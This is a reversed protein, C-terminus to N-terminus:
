KKSKQCLYLYEFSWALCDQISRSRIFGYQNQHILRLICTQLRDALIKTILKICTNLLSIPMYDSVTTPSDVKPILTIYSSNISQLWINENYFEECLLYFDEAIVPWCKKLDTNFGDPGPSKHRPMSQVVKNIEEKTFPMQLSELDEYSQLLSSLDFQMETFETTGLRDKYSQWLLLSKDEHSSYINGNEDQLTTIYNRIHKVTANAHFFDTCEDGFKVWKITGRQKWYILQQHLLILLHRQVIKRFNWEELTM